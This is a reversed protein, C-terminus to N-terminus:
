IEIEIIKKCRNKAISQYLCSGKAVFTYELTLVHIIFPKNIQCARCRTYLGVLQQITM